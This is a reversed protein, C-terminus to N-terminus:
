SNIQVFKKFTQLAKGSELSERAISVTEEISLNPEMITIGCAANALIVSKQGETATGQLVADFIAKAQEPTEGGYIEEPKIYNFGLEKPTYVKEFYNTCIKFGSTLSIEDYGDYSTIVGYNDGIKQHLNTYLRLQGQTATGHLSNKPHCPNVLPGLLNFCTPVQLARRTPGVYKMGTAFLPAHFYCINAEDLSRRLTDADDSFKVGHAALVNSAGSVSTSGGNGHKTVPYGAGAIVFASCTSINFTNKGDGGTGVIDLTNYQELDIFKGTDLLGQRFGLMEAVTVGRTQITMLLAAIQEANYQEKTIGLMIHYTDEQSLTEGAILKQLYHKM